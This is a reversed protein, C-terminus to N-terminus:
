GKALSLWRFATRESIDYEKMLVATKESSTLEGLGRLATNTKLVVERARGEQWLEARGELNIYLDIDPFGSYDAVQSKTFRLRSRHNGTRWIHVQSTANSRWLQSGIFSEDGPESEDSQLKRDHGLLVKAVGPLWTTLAADVLTATEDDRASKGAHLGGLADFLVVRIEREQIYVAISQATTSVSFGQRTIDCKPLVVFPFAPIFAENGWRMKFQYMNMDTSVLLCKAQTTPLNLYPEGKTIANAAGWLFASKGCGPPGHVFTTSGAPILPDLLFTVPPLSDRVIPWNEPEIIDM